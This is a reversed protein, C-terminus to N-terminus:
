PKQSEATPPTPPTYGPIHSWHSFNCLDYPLGDVLWYPDAHASKLQGFRPLLGGYKNYLLVTQDEEPLVYSSVPIRFVQARRAGEREERTTALREVLTAALEEAVYPASLCEKSCRDADACPGGNCTPCVEPFPGTPFGLAPGLLDIIAQEQAAAANLIRKNEQQTTALEREATEARALLSLLADGETAHIAEWARVFAKSENLESRLRDVEDLLWSRDLTARTSPSPCRKVSQRIAELREARIKEMKAAKEGAEGQPTTTPM